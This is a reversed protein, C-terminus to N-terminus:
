VLESKSSLSEVFRRLREKDENEGDGKFYIEIFTIKHQNKEYVLIVRIGSCGGKGKLSACAFKRVKQSTYSENCFGEINVLAKPSVPFGKIYHVELLNKKMSEFDTELTKYRKLLKKFDKDFEPVTKYDITM